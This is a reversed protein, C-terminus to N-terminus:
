CRTVTILCHCHPLGSKFQVGGVLSLDSKKKLAYGRPIKWTPGFLIIFIVIIDLYKSVSEIDFHSGPYNDDTPSKCNFFPIAWNM